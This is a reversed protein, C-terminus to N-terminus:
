FFILDLQFTSIGQTESCHLFLLSLLILSTLIKFIGQERFKDLDYNFMYEFISCEEWIQIEVGFATNRFETLINGMWGYVCM